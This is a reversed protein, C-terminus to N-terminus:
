TRRERFEVSWVCLFLTRQAVLPLPRSKPPDDHHGGQTNSSDAAAGCNWSGGLFAFHDTLKYHYEEQAPHRM